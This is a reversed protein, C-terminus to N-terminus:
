RREASSGRMGRHDALMGLVRSLLTPSVLNPDLKARARQAAVFFEDRAAPDMQVRKIGQREFVESLLKQEQAHGVDEFRAVFKAAAARVIKQYAIPLVDFARQSVVFCAPLMSVTLDTYYHV